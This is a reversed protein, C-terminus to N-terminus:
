EMKVAKEIYKLLNFHKEPGVLMFFASAKGAEAV